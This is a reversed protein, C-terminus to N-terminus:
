QPRSNFHVTVGEAVPMGIATWQAETGAFHIDTLATCGFFPDNMVTTLTAPIYVAQLSTCDQFVSEWLLELKEPLVLTTLSTCGSFAYAGIDTLQNSFKVETLATCGSFSGHSLIILSDPLSISQLATCGSFADPFITSMGDPLSVSELSTCLAFATSDVNQLFRPLVVKKLTTDRFFAEEGIHTVIYNDISSPVYLETEECTGRGTIKCNRSISIQEYALGAHGIYPTVGPEQLLLGCVGCEVGGISGNETVTPLVTPISKRTHDSKRITQTETEGCPCTREKQGTALCTAESVTTWDGFAHVHPQTEPEATAAETEAVTDESTDAPSEPQTDAPATPRPATNAATSAATDATDVPEKIESCATLLALSLLLIASPLRKPIIKM